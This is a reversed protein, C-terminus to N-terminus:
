YIYTDSHEFSRACKILSIESPRQTYTHRKRVVCYLSTRAITKRTEKQKINVVWLFRTSICLSLHLSLSPFGQSHWLTLCKLASVAVEM